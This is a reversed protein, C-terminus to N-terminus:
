KQGMDVLCRRDWMVEKVVSTVVKYEVETSFFCVNQNKKCVLVRVRWSVFVFIGWSIKQIYFRGGM